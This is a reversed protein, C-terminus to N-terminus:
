IIRKGNAIPNITREKIKPIEIVPIDKAKINQFERLMSLLLQNDTKKFLDFLDKETLSYLDKYTIFGREIAIRTIESLLQMMYNDERSHCFENIVDSLKVIRKAIKANNFGIEPKGEEDSYVKLSQITKKIEDKEITKTWAISTLVIGDLRDACLKPRKNDVISYRKFDIIEEPNIGDEKFCRMLYQDNEIISETYEETSEQTMYDRNMYDIVHSFCPTGVDHFLGAITAKKDHTLKYTILAVTLSHDYRSIPERFNYVGKSAYDMGCFYSIKKLRQLSPAKLYKYLFAPFKEYYDLQRLYYKLM